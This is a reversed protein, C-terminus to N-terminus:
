MYYTLQITVGVKRKENGGLGRKASTRGGEGGM